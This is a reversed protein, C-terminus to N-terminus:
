EHWKLFKVLGKRIAKDAAAHNMVTLDGKKHNKTDKIYEMVANKNFVKFEKTYADSGPEPIVPRKAEEKKDLATYTVRSEKPRAVEKTTITKDAM